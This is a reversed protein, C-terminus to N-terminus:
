ERGTRRNEWSYLLSGPSYPGLVFQGMVISANDGSGGSFNYAEVMEKYAECITKSSDQLNNSATRNDLVSPGDKIMVAKSAAAKAEGSLITCAAKAVIFVSFDLDNIEVPDPSISENMVNVTYQNYFSVAQLVKYASIALVQILRADTYVTSDLDNIEARLMKVLTDEWM